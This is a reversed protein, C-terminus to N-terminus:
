QRSQRGFRQQRGTGRGSGRGGRRDITRVVGRARGKGKGPTGKGKGKAGGKGSHESTGTGTILQGSTLEAPTADAVRKIESAAFGEPLTSHVDVGTTSFVRSCEAPTTCWKAGQEWQTTSGGAKFRAYCLSKNDAPQPFRAPEVDLHICSTGFAIRQGPLVRVGLRAAASGYTQTQASGPDHRPGGGLDPKRENRKTPVFRARLAEAKALDIQDDVAKLTLAAGGTPSFFHTARTAVTVSSKLMQVHQQQAEQFALAVAYKLAQLMASKAESQPYAEIRELRIKVNEILSKFTYSESGTFGIAEFWRVLTRRARELRRTSMFIALPSPSSPDFTATSFEMDEKVLVPRVVHRWFDISAPSCAVSDERLTDFVLWQGAAFKKCIAASIPKGWGLQKVGARDYSVAANLADSIAAESRAIGFDKYLEINPTRTSHLFILGAPSEAKLMVAAVEAADIPITHLAQLKATLDQAKPDSQAETWKDDSNDCTFAGSGHLTGQGARSAVRRRLTMLAEAARDQATKGAFTPADVVALIPTVATDVDRCAQMRLEDGHGLVRAAAKLFSIASEATAQDTMLIAVQPLALRWRRELLPVLDDGNARRFIEIIRDDSDMVYDLEVPIASKVFGAGIM